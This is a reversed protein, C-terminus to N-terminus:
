DAAEAAQARAHLRERHLAYLSAGVIIAAGVLTNVSPWEAFFIAGLIVAYLLRLYDISALATAEGVRFGAFNLTQGGVSLVGILILGVWEASTPPVWYVYAPVVLALGIGVAQYTIVTALKEKQALKRIIVVVMAVSCASGLAILSYINVGEGSPQVCILVGIFGLVLALWRHIGVTEKLIIIALLAVFLARSFSITVADTLPLYVMATFGGLMSIIALFVRLVHLNLNETRFSEIPHRVIRPSMMLMMVVQRIFLIQVVPIRQGTGKILATMVSFIVGGLAAWIMGRVNGPLLLWRAKLSDVRARLRPM